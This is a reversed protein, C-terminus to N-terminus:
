GGSAGSKKSCTICFPYKTENIALRLRWFVDGEANLGTFFARDIGDALIPEDIDWNRSRRTSSPTSL